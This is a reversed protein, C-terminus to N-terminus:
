LGSAGSLFNIARRRSFQEPSPIDMRRVQRWILKRDAWPPMIEDGALGLGTRVKLGYDKNAIWLDVQARDNTLHYGRDTHWDAPNVQLLDLIRRGIDSSLRWLLQDIVSRM